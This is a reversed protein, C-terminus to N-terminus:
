RTVAMSSLSREIEKQIFELPEIVGKGVVPTDILFQLLIQFAESYELLLNGPISWTVSNKTHKKFITDLHYLPSLNGLTVAIIEGVQTHTGMIDPIVTNILYRGEAASVRVGGKVRHTLQLTARNSKSVLKGVSQLLSDQERLIRKSPVLEDLVKDAGWMSDVLKVRQILYAKELLIEMADLINTLRQQHVALNDLFKATSVPVHPTAGSSIESCGEKLTVEGIDRQLRSLTYQLYDQSPYKGATDWDGSFIQLDTAAAGHKQMNLLLVDIIVSLLLEPPNESTQLSVLPCDGLLGVLTDGSQAVIYDQGSLSIKGILEAKKQPTKM